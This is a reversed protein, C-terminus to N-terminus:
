VPLRWNAAQGAPCTTLFTHCENERFEGYAIGHAWSLTSRRSDAYRAKRVDMLTGVATALVSDDRRGTSQGPRHTHAHIVNGFTEAHDRNAQEGFMIGHIVKSNGLPIHARVSWDEVYNAKLKRLVDRIDDIMSQAAYSKVADFHRAANWLRIEHNGNLVDTPELSRLFNLGHGLDGKLEVAQDATGHAGSRFAATDIFDGAHFTRHPKWHKKFLLAAKIADDDQLHGHSCGLVMFRRYGGSPKSM